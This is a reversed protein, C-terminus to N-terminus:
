LAGTALDNLLLLFVSSTWTYAKDRLPAGTLADFNEAFGGSKCLEVFQTALRKALTTEGCRRLGQVILWTSPAWIPGRWYGDPTYLPSSPAETAMGYETLFGGSKLADLAGEVHSDGILGKLLISMMPLACQCELPQHVGPVVAQPVANQFFHAEYAPRMERLLERWESADKPLSLADAVLALTEIQIMLFANLDPTEVCPSMLFVTGNDWGSDNGHHYEAMLDHDRDRFNLWWRTWRCLAPYAERLMSDEVGGHDMMFLLTLGHIPPKVFNWIPEVDNISDLLAGFADQQDFMVMLQDWALRKDGSWLAMANFCHDWSWVNSMWNKSMLMGPRKFLGEPAVICSWNLYLALAASQDYGPLAKLDHSAVFRAFAQFCAEACMDFNTNPDAPVFSTRYLAIVWEGRGDEPLLQVRGDKGHHGDWEISHEVSGTRPSFMCKVASAPLNADVSMGDPTQVMTRYPGGSIETLSLGIGGRSRVRIAREGDFCIDIGGDGVDLRLMHPHCTLQYTIAKGDQTTELLFMAKSAAGGSITRLLLGAHGNNGRTDKAALSLAFYSGPYSLPMGSVDITLNRLIDHAINM